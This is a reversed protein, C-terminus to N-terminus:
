KDYDKFPPWCDLRRQQVVEKLHEIVTKYNETSDLNEDDWSVTGPPPLIFINPDAVRANPEKELEPLTFVLFIWDFFRVYIRSNIWEGFLEYIVYHVVSYRSYETIKIYKM